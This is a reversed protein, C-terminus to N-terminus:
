LVTSISLGMANGAGAAPRKAGANVSVASRSMSASIPFAGSLGSGLNSLGLAIAEQNPHIRQRRKAAFSQAVSVSSVFGIISILLASSFLSKWTEASWQLQQIDPLSLTPLGPPIHGIIAVGQQELDFLVVLFISGMIAIIPAIKALSTALLHNLALKNAVYAFIKPYSYLFSFVGCGILLTATHINHMQLPISQMISFVNKGQTNIGLLKDVQSIAIVVASASIFGTIVPFSLFNNLFGLRLCGFMILFIGSSFALVIAAPILQEPSSAPFLAHLATATMISSIAFPGVSLSASGGVVAYILLPLISAYLGLQPPLGALLAYALSQPIMILSIVVAAISDDILTQHNYDKAWHLFPFFTHLQM